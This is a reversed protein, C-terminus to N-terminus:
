ICSFGINGAVIFRNCHSCLHKMSQDLDFMGHVPVCHVVFHDKKDCVSMLIVKGEGNILFFYM